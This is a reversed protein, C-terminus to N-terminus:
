DNKPWIPVGEFRRRILLIALIGAVLIGVDVAVGVVSMSEGPSIDFARFLLSAMGTAAEGAAFAIGVPMRLSRVYGTPPKPVLALVLLIAAFAAAMPPKFNPGLRPPPDLPFLIVTENQVLEENGLLDVSRFEIRHGGFGEVVFPAVYTQWTGDDVRYEIFDVGVGPGDSANLMVTTRIVTRDGTVEGQTFTTISPADDVTAVLTREVEVGGLNDESWYAVTHPGVPLAFPLAHTQASGNDVRYYTTLGDGSLDTAVLAFRTSSRVFLRDTTVNSGTWSIATTPPGRVDVAFVAENNAEDMEQLADAPDIVFRVTAPVPTSPSTWPVNVTVNGGVALSAVNASFFATPSAGEYASLPVNTGGDIQGDNRVEVAFSVTAGATVKAPGDVGGIRYDPGSVTILVVFTNNAESSEPAQDGADVTVNLYYFGPSSPVPWAATWPGAHAGPVLTTTVSASFRWGPIPPGLHGQTQVVEVEFADTVPDVGVNAAEFTVNVTGGLRAPLPASTFNAAFPDTYTANAEAEITINWPSLDPGRVIITITATNNAEDSERVEDDPDAAFAVAHTGPTTATWLTSAQATGNAAVMPVITRAIEAGDVSFSVNFSSSVGVPGAHVTGNFTVLAGVLPTGDSAALDGVAVFLDPLVLQLTVVDWGPPSAAPEVLVGHSGVDANAPTFDDVLPAAFSLSWAGGGDASTPYVAGTAPISVLLDENPAAAGWALVSAGPAVRSPSLSISGAWSPPALSFATLNSWLHFYDNPAGQRHVETKVVANADPHYWRDTANGDASVAHIRAAGVFSGAPVTVDETANFWARFSVNTEGSLDQTVPGLPTGTVRAAGTSNATGTFSWADALELPFDLDEFGPTNRVTTGADITIPFTFIGVQIFGTMNTTQNAAVSALNSRDFWSWGSLSGSVSFPNVGALVVVGSASATGSSSGNYLTYTLGGVTETRVESVTTTVNLQTTVTTGDPSAARITTEYTWSDGLLWPDIDIPPIALPHDEPPAPEASSPPSVFSVLVTALLLAAALRRM